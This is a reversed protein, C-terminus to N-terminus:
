GLREGYKNVHVLDELRKRPRAPPDEAPWGMAIIASPVLHDPVGLLERIVDQNRLSQVWVTGLGLSHAALMLYITTNACDMLYSTPSREPNCLIVVAAKARSLPLAGAHIKSLKQLLDEDDIIIYEWPQSNRASPAHRAIDLVELIVERPVSEDRYRRISRRSLLLDKCERRKSM